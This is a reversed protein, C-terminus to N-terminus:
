DDNTETYSPEEDQENIERTVSEEQEDNTEEQDLEPEQQESTMSENLNETCSEKIVRHAALLYKHQALRVLFIRNIFRRKL